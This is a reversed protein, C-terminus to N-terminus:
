ETSWTCGTPPEMAGSVIAMLGSSYPPTRLVKGCGACRYSDGGYDPHECDYETGEGYKAIAQAETPKCADCFDLPKDQPTYIRM